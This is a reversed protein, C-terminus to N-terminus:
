SLIQSDPISVSKIERHRAAEMIAEVRKVQEPNESALDERKEIKDLIRDLDPYSLGLAFEDTIGPAVDPSAKKEIIEGPIGLEKALAYVQTKYLHALPEFDVSDDGYKVYFGTKTETKNTSGTVAYQRKEAEFYLMTMRTRHKIRYYALGELFKPDGTTSLDSLFTNGQREWIKLTYREQIRRSFLFAPPQLRYIGKKRLIPTLNILKYDIGLYSCMLKSDRITSPASDREPLLLGFVKEKGLAEVLLKGTVASDIGGSIGIVSGKFGYKEMNEKLFNIIEDKM